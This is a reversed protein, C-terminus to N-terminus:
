LILKCKSQSNSLLNRAKQKGAETININFSLKLTHLQCNNNNIAEALHQAGIDSINNFTLDLTHLQCNNNNIAEALHQAGIDSIINYTLDLTHLQCNNDNIAEALHQAGIHSIYNHSLNLTHLQCNNSNIAEALHQAGIYSINNATLNLTHLQCNNNNIADALHQAGINSIDNDTLDLTHLQCNNNNIAEALHQAGIYSINNYTLNLTHLQCNNNNIADALHQAGINSINNHSLDLTHLQCNNSNIAEALHQAGIYSINNESLNLTRLQCNNNNIADALHQAGIYSINNESLNLTRLQCNNNNIAEALHQAGIYSINNESLDLTHLQCNNSNIAEALHQAGIHSINNHSLNLTHLQCNNNNIAEALHQAGIHSINNATLNLTRLQCNNNNIAEALYKAAEDTLQNRMLNLWSLQSERCKLLRCIEFCGLPGINNHSLDLHSIQQVNIVNVLSSCDVATLDCFNFNVCNFNMQQLKRQAESKMRSNENLCKILTVALEREDETPWCTVKRQEENETWQENYDASEDEETKVPLLDTIIESPLDTKNEMLGALFQFVLQWRGDKINESVFNKLETESMNALHRAAFFEQMTLHIFCFQPELNLTDTKRDPLRHFLASNGMGKIENGGLILKGEKIGNFAVKGLIKFNELEDEPLDHELPFLINCLEITHKFYFVKVAINYILTLKSPLTVDAFSESEQKRMIELLSTCIIFSNVPVYCLSLLNLNSSIHRWLTEGVAEEDGALKYVYEEVQESSFGLVEYIKHFPLHKISSLATPRTTTVISADKLLKGTVLWQYLIQLPQKEENSRPYLPAGVVNANHKFEDFGDFLILVGKPNELLHNWVEDDLHDKPFYESQILLEKLGLNNESKFRRFKVLFAADFHIKGGATAQFVKNLAWDRVLKTCCITKGIGARGVILVKKNEVNLLDEMSKPQSKEGRSRPYIKLQEERNETFDYTARNPIVVLNTYIQDLTLHKVTTNEGPNGSFPSQLELLRETEEIIIEKKRKIFAHFKREQLEETDTERGDLHQNLGFHTKIFMSDQMFSREICARSFLYVIEVLITVVLIGNVGLVAYMWYTKKAARQNHCDYLPSHQANDTSNRPQTTGDTLNCDFKSSFKLPYLLQTQLIISLVGLVLRTFLQCCYAIFLKYGTSLPNGQDCPQREPDGNRSSPSLRNVTPRVILSYIVCASIILFFNTIVFGYVPVGLKNQQEAYKEYCKGQVAKINESKAGGCNFDYRPENYEMDAFIGLFIVGIVSWIVVVGFPIKSFTKPELFELLKEMSM